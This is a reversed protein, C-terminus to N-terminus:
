RRAGTLAALTDAASKTLADIGAGVIYWGKPDLYIVRKAKWAATAAIRPDGGLREDIPTPPAGTAAARDLVILWDPNTALAAALAAQRRKAAAQAEPTDPAPRPASGGPAVAAVAPRIGIFDYATGFRDGPAHVTAGRGAVFLVLGTGAGAAKAHLQALQAEFAAVRKEARDSVGFLRGLTRTNQIATRALEGGSSSLDITPAIAKVADFKRASRGGVVILDPLLASLAAADPEFLTGVNAYRPDAYRALHPPLNGRGGEGKPVGAVAEVGLANLIDLTALDFVAVKRPTDKLVTEGRAHAVTVERASAPTAMALAAGALWVAQKVIIM